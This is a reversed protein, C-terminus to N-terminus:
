WQVKPGVVNGMAYKHVLVLVEGKKIFRQQLEVLKHIPFDTFIQILAFNIENYPELIANRIM